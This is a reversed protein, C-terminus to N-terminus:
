KSTIEVCTGHGPDSHITFQAGILGARHRMIRIGMGEGAPRDAAMGRGDDRIRLLWGAETASLEIAVQTAQAHRAANNVAERAILYLQEKTKRDQGSLATCGAVKCPVHYLGTMEGALQRLATCLSEDNLSVPALGRAMDRVQAVASKLTENLTRSHTQQESKVASFHNMLSRSLFVAGTLKQGLSDHLDSGIRRREKAALEHMEEELCARERLNEELLDNARHLEKTRARVEAEIKRTQHSLILLQSTMLATILLGLALAATSNQGTVSAPLACKFNWKTGIAELPHRYVWRGKEFRITEEVDANAPSMLDLHLEPSLTSLSGVRKLIQEPHLVAVAFGIVTGPVPVPLSKFQKPIVPAFVWYTHAADKSFSVPSPVLATRHTQEIQRITSLAGPLTAFDFGVPINLVNTRSQWTLPHYVPRTEAPMWTGDSGKQVIDYAGPGTKRRKEIEIRLQPSVRQTLGFVGLVTHQHVLGKEIFEDMAAQNVEDSLTHLACVSELVKAFLVLEQKTNQRLTEASLRAKASETQAIRSRIHLSLSIGTITTLIALVLPWRSHRSRTPTMKTEVTSAMSQNM